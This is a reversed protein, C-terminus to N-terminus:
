ALLITSIHTERIEPQTGHRAALLVELFARVADQDGVVM